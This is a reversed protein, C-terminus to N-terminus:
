KIPKKLGNFSGKRWMKTFAGSETNHYGKLGNDKESDKNAKYILM